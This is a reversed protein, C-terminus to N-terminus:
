RHHELQRRFSRRAAATASGTRASLITTGNMSWDVVTGDTNRWLVDANPEGNFSSIAAVSWSPGVNVAVGGSTVANGAFISGGNMTWAALGGSSDRWLIDSLQDGGFDNPVVQPAFSVPATAFNFGRPFSTAPM